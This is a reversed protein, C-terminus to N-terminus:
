SASLNTAFYVVSFTRRSANTLFRPLPPATLITHKHKLLKETLEQTFSVAIQHWSKGFELQYGIVEKLYTQTFFMHRKWGFNYKVGIDGFKISGNSKLNVRNDSFLACHSM